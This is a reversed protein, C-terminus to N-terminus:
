YRHGQNRRTTPTRAGLLVALLGEAQNCDAVFDPVEIVWRLEADHPGAQIDKAELRVGTKGWSVPTSHVHVLRTHTNSLLIPDQTTSLPVPGIVWATQDASFPQVSRPRYPRCLQAAAHHRPYTPSMFFLFRSLLM